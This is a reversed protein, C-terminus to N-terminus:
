TMKRREKTLRYCAYRVDNRGTVMETTITYGTSRLDAIRSRIAFGRPFDNFTVGKSGKSRLVKLVRETSQNM